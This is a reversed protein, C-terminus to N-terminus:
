IYQYTYVYIHMYLGKLGQSIGRPQGNNVEKPASLMGDIVDSVVYLNLLGPNRPMKANKVFVTENLSAGVALFAVVRQAWLGEAVKIGPEGAISAEPLGTEVLKSLRKVLPLLCMMGFVM